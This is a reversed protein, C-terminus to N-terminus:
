LIAGVLQSSYTGTMVLGPSAISQLCYIEATLQHSTAVASGDVLIEATIGVELDFTTTRKVHGESVVYSTPPPSALSSDSITLGIHKSNNDVTRAHLLLRVLYTKGPAFNGFTLTSTGNATGIIATFNLAESKVESPGTAGASGTAGATGTEGKLGQAGNTGDTGNTGNAGNTGAAGTAGATGTEGRLGQAGNTGNTGAAGTAGAPGTSGPAGPLGQPGQLGPLGQPGQPGAVGAPGVDGKAGVTASASTTSGKAGDKGDIGAPGQPGVPGRLSAPITWKGNTKPGYFNFSTKDLYFDGDIGISASPAGKGSLITNSVTANVRGAKTIVKKDVAFSNDINIISLSTAVCITILTVKLDKVQRSKTGM